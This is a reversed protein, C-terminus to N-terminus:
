FEMVMGCPFMHAVDGREELLRRTIRATIGWIGYKGQYEWYPTEGALVEYHSMYEALIPPLDKREVDPTMEYSAPPNDRLWKVPLAFVEAVEARSLELEELSDGRVDIHALVVDILRGTMQREPELEGVIHIASEEIGLEEMTERVAAEVATEGEEM